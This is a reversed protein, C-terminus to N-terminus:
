KKKCQCIKVEQNEDEGVVIVMPTGKRQLVIGPTFSGINVMYCVEYFSFEQGTYYDQYDELPIGDVAIYGVVVVPNNDKRDLVKKYHRKKACENCKQKQAGYQHDYEFESGCEICRRTYIEQEPAFNRLMTEFDTM